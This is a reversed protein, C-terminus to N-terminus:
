PPDDTSILDTAYVLHATKIQFSLGGGWNGFLFYNQM